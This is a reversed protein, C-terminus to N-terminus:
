VQRAARRWDTSAITGSVLRSLKGFDVGSTAGGAGCGSPPTRAPMPDVELVSYGYKGELDDAELCIDPGGPGADKLARVTKRANAMRDDHTVVSAKELYGGKPIDSRSFFM